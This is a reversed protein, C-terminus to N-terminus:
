TSLASMTFISSILTRLNADALTAYHGISEDLRNVPTGVLSVAGEYDM